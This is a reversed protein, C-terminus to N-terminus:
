RVMLLGGDVALTQGTIFRAGDSVLFVLVPTMDRDPDGLRGGLPITMAMGRDHAALAEPTMGSRTTDYM